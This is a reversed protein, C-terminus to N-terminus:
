AKDPVMKLKEQLFSTIQHVLGLTPALRAFSDKWYADLILDSGLCGVSSAINSLLYIFNNSALGFTMRVKSNRMLCNKVGELMSKEFM